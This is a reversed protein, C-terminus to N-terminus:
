GTRIARLTWINMTTDCGTSNPKLLEYGIVPHRNMIKLESEDLREPKDLIAIPIRAKGIDHLTAALGLRMVDADSFKINLGFEVAM